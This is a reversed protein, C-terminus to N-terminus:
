WKYSPKALVKASSFTGWLTDTHSSELFKRMGKKCPIFGVDFFFKIEQTEKRFYYIPKIFILQVGKTNFDSDYGTFHRYNVRRDKNVFVVRTNLSKLRFKKPAYSFSVRCRLTTLHRQDTPQIVFFFFAGM